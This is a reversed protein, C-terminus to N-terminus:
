VRDYIADAESYGAFFQEATLRSWAAREEADTPESVLLIVRVVQDVPLIASLTDPLVLRGDPTVRVSFEYAKMKSKLGGEPHLEPAPPPFRVRLLLKSPQPLVMKCRGRVGSRQAEHSVVLMRRKAASRPQSGGTPAAPSSGAVGADWVCHAETQAM